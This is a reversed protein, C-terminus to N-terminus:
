AQSYTPMTEEQIMGDQFIRRTAIRLYSASKWTAKLEVFNEAM